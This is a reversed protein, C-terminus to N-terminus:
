LLFRSIHYCIFSYTTPVASYGQFYQLDKISILLLDIVLLYGITFALLEQLFPIGITRGIDLGLARPIKYRSQSSSHPANARFHDSTKHNLLSVPSVIIVPRSKKSISNNIRASATFGHRGFSLLSSPFLM